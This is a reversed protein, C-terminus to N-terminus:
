QKLANNISYTYPAEGGTASITIEAQSEGSCLIDTNSVTIALPDDQLIAIDYTAECYGSAGGNDRVYVDYDGTSTVTVPNTTSFDSVGPTVGNAVVAYM